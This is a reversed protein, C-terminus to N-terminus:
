SNIAGYSNEISKVVIKISPRLKLRLQRFHVAFSNRAIRATGVPSESTPKTIFDALCDCLISRWRELGGLREGPM